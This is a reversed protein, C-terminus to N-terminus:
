GLRKEVRQILQELYLRFMSVESHPISLFSYHRFRARMLLNRVHFFHLLICQNLPVSSYTVQSRDGVVVDVLDHLTEASTEGMTVVRVSVVSAIGVELALQIFQDLTISFIRAVWCHRPLLNM